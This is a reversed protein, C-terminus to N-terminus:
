SHPARQDLDTALRDVFLQEGGSAQRAAAGATLREPLERYPEGTWADTCPPLTLLYRGCVRGPGREPGEPDATPPAPTTPRGARLTRFNRVPSPFKRRESYQRTVTLREVDRELSRGYNAIEFVPRGQAFQAARCIVCLQVASGRVSAGAGVGNREPSTRVLADQSKTCDSLHAVDHSPGRSLRSPTGGHRHRCVAAARRVDDPPRGNATLAPQSRGPGM